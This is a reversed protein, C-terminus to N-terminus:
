YFEGPWVYDSPAHEGFHWGDMEAHPAVWPQDGDKCLNAVTGDGWSLQDGGKIRCAGGMLDLQARLARPAEEKLVIRRSSGAPRVYPMKKWSDPQDRHIDADEALSRWAQDVVQDAIDRSFANRIVVYGKSLFHECEDRTLEACREIVSDM